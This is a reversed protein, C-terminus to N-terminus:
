RFAAADPKGAFRLYALLDLVEEKSLVNLLGAPMSSTNSPAMSEIKARPITQRGEVGEVELVVEDATEIVLRGVVLEGDNLVVSTNRYQEHIVKSPEVISELLSRWDYKSGAGTLEPGLAGGDNGFRHCALCQTDVFAQQGRAFNRRTAARELEPSLDSM